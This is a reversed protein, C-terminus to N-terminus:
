TQQVPIEIEMVVAEAEEAAGAAARIIIAEDAQEIECRCSSPEATGSHM